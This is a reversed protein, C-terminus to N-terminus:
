PPPCRRVDDALAAEVLQDEAGVLGLGPVELVPDSADDERGDALVAAVDLTLLM